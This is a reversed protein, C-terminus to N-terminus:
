KANGIAQLDVGCVTKIDGVLINYKMTLTEKGKLLATMEEENHTVIIEIFDSVDGTRDPLMWQNSQNLEDYHWFGMKQIYDLDDRHEKDNSMSQAYYDECPTFFSEPVRYLNNHYIFNAWLMANIKGKVALLEEDSKPFDDKRLRGIALYARGYQCQLDDWLEGEYREDDITDALFIQTPFYKRIFETNYQDLLVNRLFEIGKPYVEDMDEEKIKTLINPSIAAVNWKYDLTDYEELIFTGTNQWLEYVYHRSPEDSDQLVYKPADPVSVIPKEKYCSTISLLILAVLSINIIKKM